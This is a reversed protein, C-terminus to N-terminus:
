LHFNNFIISFCILVMIRNLFFNFRIMWDSSSPAGAGHAFVVVPSKEYNAVKELSAINRAEIAEGTATEEERQRGRGEDGERSKDEGSTRRRKAARKAPAMQNELICLYFFDLEVKVICTVKM